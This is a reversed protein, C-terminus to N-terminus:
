RLYEIEDGYGQEGTEQLKREWWEDRIDKRKLAECVVKKCLM